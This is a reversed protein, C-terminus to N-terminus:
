KTVPIAALIANACEEGTMPTVNRWGRVLEAVEHWTETKIEAKIRDLADIADAARQAKEAALPNEVPDSERLDAVLSKLDDIM